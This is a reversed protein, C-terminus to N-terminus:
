KITKTGHITFSDLLLYQKKFWHLIIIFIQLVVKNNKTILNTLMPITPIKAMYSFKWHNKKKTKFNQGDYRHKFPM